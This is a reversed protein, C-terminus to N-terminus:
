GENRGPFSALVALLLGGLTLEIEVEFDVGRAEL